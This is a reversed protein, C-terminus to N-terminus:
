FLGNQAGNQGRKAGYRSFCTNAPCATKALLLVSNVEILTYFIYFFLHLTKSINDFLEMKVGTQGRKSGKKGGFTWFWTIALCATKAFLLASIVEILMYFSYFFYHLSKSFIGFLQMKVKVGNQGRKPGFRSGSMKKQFDSEAVKRRNYKESEM